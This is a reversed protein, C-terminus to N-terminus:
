RNVFRITGFRAPTHFGGYTPSWAAGEPRYRYFNAGWADGAKPPTGLDAFPIRVELVYSNKDNTAGVEVDTSWAPSVAAGAGGDADILADCVDGMASVIFQGYRHKSRDSALFIEVGDYKWMRANDRGREPVNLPKGEPVQSEYAVYLADDDWCLRVTTAVKTMKGFRTTPLQFIATHQWAAETLKGDLTVEGRRRPVDVTPIPPLQKM